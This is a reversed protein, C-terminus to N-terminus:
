HSVVSLWTVGGEHVVPLVRLAGDPDDALVRQAARALSPVTGRKSTHGALHTLFHSLHQSSTVLDTSVTQVCRACPCPRRHRQFLQYCMPSGSSSRYTVLRTMANLVSHETPLATPDTGVGTWRAMVALAHTRVADEIAEGLTPGGHALCTLYAAKMTAYTNPDDRGKLVTVGVVNQDAYADPHLCAEIEALSERRLAPMCFDWNACDLKVGRRRMRKVAESAVVGYTQIYPFRRKLTAVIAPNKDIVHLNGQRFGNQLAVEIEKGEVSPMMAAQKTAV